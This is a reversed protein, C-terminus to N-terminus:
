LGIVESAILELEGGRGGEGAGGENYIIACNKSEGGGGVKGQTPLVQPVELVLRLRSRGWTQTKKDIGQEKTKFSRQGAEMCKHSHM